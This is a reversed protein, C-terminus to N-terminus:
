NLALHVFKLYRLEHCAHPFPHDPGQGSVRLIQGRRRCASLSEDIIKFFDDFSIHSSCSSLSLQGGPAVRKAAAAFLESYKKFATDKHEESHGMSPPDVVIHDWFENGGNLYEFV